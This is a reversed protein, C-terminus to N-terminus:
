NGKANSPKSLPAQNPRWPLRSIQAYKVNFKTDSHCNKKLISRHLQNEELIRQIECAGKSQIPKAHEQEFILLNSRSSYWMRDVRLTSLANVNGFIAEQWFSVVRGGSVIVSWGEEVWVPVEGKEWKCQCEVRGGDVSASWRPDYLDLGIVMEPSTSHGNIWPFNLSPCIVM